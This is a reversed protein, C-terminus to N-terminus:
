RRKLLVGAFGLMLMSLSYGAILLWVWPSLTNANPLSAAGATTLSSGNQSSSSTTPSPSPTT